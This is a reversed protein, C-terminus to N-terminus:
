KRYASLDNNLSSTSTKLTDVTIAMEFFEALKMSFASSVCTSNIDVDLMINNM